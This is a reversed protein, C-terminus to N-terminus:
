RPATGYLFERRLMTATMADTFRYRHTVNAMVEIMAEDPLQELERKSAARVRAAVVRQAGPTLRWLRKERDYDLMGYRRMWAFRIGLSHHGREDDMGLAQSLEASTVGSAGEDLIKQMLDSDRFQFLSAGRRQQQNQRRRSM